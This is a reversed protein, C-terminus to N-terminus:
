REGREIRRKAAARNLLAVARTSMAARTQEDKMGFLTALNAVRHLRGHGTQAARPSM